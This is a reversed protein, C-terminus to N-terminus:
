LILEAWHDTRGQVHHTFLGATTSRPAEKNVFIVKSANVALDRILNTAAKVQLSTGMVMVMDPPNSCDVQIKKDIADQYPYDNSGYLMILPRLLGWRADRPPRDPNEGCGCPPLTGDQFTTTHQPLWPKVDRCKNCWVFKLCGHLMVCKNEEDGIDGGTIGDIPPFSQVLRSELGDINQTYCRQLSGRTNLAAIMHHTKTPNAHDSAAKMSVMTSLFKSTSERTNYVSQDFATPG